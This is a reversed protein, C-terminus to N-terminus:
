KVERSIGRLGQITLATVAIVIATSIIIIILMPMWKAKIINLQSMLGVGAPLFFFTLHDLLFKSVDDIMELKIIGMLLLILLTIM